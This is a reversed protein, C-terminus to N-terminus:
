ENLKSDTTLKLHRLEENIQKLSNVYNDLLVESSTDDILELRELKM